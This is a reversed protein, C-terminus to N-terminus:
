ARLDRLRRSAGTSFRSGHTELEVAQRYAYEAGARDGLGERAQGLYSWAAPNDPRSRCFPELESRADAFRGMDLLTQGMAVRAAPDGAALAARCLALVESGAVTFRPTM